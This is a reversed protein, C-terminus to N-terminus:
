HDLAINRLPIRCSLGNAAAHWSVRTALEAARWVSPPVDDQQAIPHASATGMRQLFSGSKTDVHRGVALACRCEPWNRQPLAPDVVAQASRENMGVRILQSRETPLRATAEDRDLRLSEDVCNLVRAIRSRRLCDM